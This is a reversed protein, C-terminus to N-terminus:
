ITGAEYRCSKGFNKDPNHERRHTVAGNQLPFDRRHKEPRFLLVLKKAAFAPAYIIGLLVVDTPGVSLVAM